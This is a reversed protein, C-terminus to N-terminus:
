PGNSAPLFANCKMIRSVNMVSMDVTKHSHKIHVTESLSKALKTGKVAGIKAIPHAAPNETVVYAYNSHRAYRIVASMAM